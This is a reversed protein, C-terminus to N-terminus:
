IAELLGLTDGVMDICKAVEALVLNLRHAHCRIYPCPNEAADRIQKQVGNSVGSMVSAGDYSQAICKKVDLGVNSLFDTITSTLSEASLVNLSAFGLFRELIKCATKNVYRVCISM